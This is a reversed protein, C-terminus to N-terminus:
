AGPSRADRERAEFSKVNPSDQPRVSSATLETAGRGAVRSALALRGVLSELLVIRIETVGM